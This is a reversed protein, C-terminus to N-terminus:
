PISLNPIAKEPHSYYLKLSIVILITENKRFVVTINKVVFVVDICAIQKVNKFYLM